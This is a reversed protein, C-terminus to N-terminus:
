DERVLPVDVLHESIFWAQLENTRIVDSVILDNTGDDGLEATQRAMTRAEFLIVEHAHLLRALQVPVDQRGRPLRPINTTEAVDHAMAISIGGLTQIREALLDVLESQEKHHKDYLLHLQYFTPGVVQWHNKKYMDRLCITDALLQNLNEVSAKCAREALGIPLKAITGYPQIEAEHQDTLPRVRDLVNSNKVTHSKM